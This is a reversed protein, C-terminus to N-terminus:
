WLSVESIKGSIKNVTWILILNIASNFLSVATSFSYNGDRIGQEYVYTSLIESATRNSDNQMAYAKEFGLSMMHGVDLIFLTVATPILVPITIYWVKQLKSAGDLTAAEYQQPDVGSLAALYIISGWGASSWVSSWVYLHRFAAESTLFKYTPLGMANLLTNVIGGTKMLADPSAFIQQIMGVVVITSVFHPAYTVFQVCKRYRVSRLENMMLALLISCPFKAILTYLSLAVTNGIVRMSYKANLFRQFHKLVNVNGRQTAWPSRWIGLTSKYDKFAIQVGLMPWYSFLLLYIVGPLILLYLQWNNYMERKIRTWVPAKGRRSGRLDSGPVTTM